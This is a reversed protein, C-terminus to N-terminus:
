AALTQILIQDPDDGYGLLRRAVCADASCAAYRRLGAATHEMRTIAGTM